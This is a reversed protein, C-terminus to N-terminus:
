RPPHRASGNGDRGGSPGSLARTLKRCESHVDGEPERYRPEGKLIPRGCIRCIVREDPERDGMGTNLYRPSRILASPFMEGPESM